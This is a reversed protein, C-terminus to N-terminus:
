KTVSTFHQHAPFGNMKGPVTAECLLPKQTNLWHATWENQSKNVASWTATKNELAGIIVKANLFIKTMVQALVSSSDQHQM